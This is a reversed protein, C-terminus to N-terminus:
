SNTDSPQPALAPRSLQGISRALKVRLQELGVPKAVVDDMGSNGGLVAVLDPVAALEHLHDAAVATAARNDRTVLRLQRGRLVGGARNIEDIALEIGQQM